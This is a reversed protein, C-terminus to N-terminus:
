REAGSGRVVAPDDQRGGLGDLQESPGKDAPIEHNGFASRVDPIDYQRGESIASILGSTWSAMLGRVRLLEAQRQQYVSM